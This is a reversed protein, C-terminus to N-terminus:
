TGKALKYIEKHNEAAYEMARCAEAVRGANLHYMAAIDHQKMGMVHHWYAVELVEEPTLATKVEVPKM